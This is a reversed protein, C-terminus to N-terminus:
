VFAVQHLSALHHARAAYGSHGSAIVNVKGDVRRRAFRGSPITPHFRIGFVSTAQLAAPINTRPQSILIPIGAFLKRPPDRHPKLERKGPDTEHKQDTTAGNM